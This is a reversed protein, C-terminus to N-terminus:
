AKPPGAASNKAEQEQAIKVIEEPTITSLDMTLFPNNLEPNEKLVFVYNKGEPSTHLKEVSGDLPMNIGESTLLVAKMTKDMGIAVFGSQDPWTHLQSLFQVPGYEKGKFNVIFKGEENMAMLENGKGAEPDSFVSCEVGYRDTECPKLEVNELNEYPGKRKDGEYVYFEKELRTVLFLNGGAINLPLCSETAVIFEKEQLTLLVKRVTGNALNQSYCGAYGTMSVLLISLLHKM